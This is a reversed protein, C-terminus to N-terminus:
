ISVADVPKFSRILEDVSMMRFDRPFRKVRRILGSDGRKGEAISGRDFRLILATGHYGNHTHSGVTRRRAARQAVSAFCDRGANILAESQALFQFISINLPETTINRRTKLLIAPPQCRQM